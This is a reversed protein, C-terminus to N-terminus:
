GSKQGLRTRASLSSVRSSGQGANRRAVLLSAAPIYVHHRPTLPCPLGPSRGPGRGPAESGGAGGTGAGAAISRTPWDGRAGTLGQAKRAPPRQRQSRSSRGREPPEPKAPLAGGAPTMPHPPATSLARLPRTLFPPRAWAPSRGATDSPAHGSLPGLHGGYAARVGTPTGLAIIPRAASGATDVAAQWRGPTPRPSRPTSCRSRRTAARAAGVALLPRSPLPHIGPLCPGRTTNPKPPRLAPYNQPCPAQADCGM